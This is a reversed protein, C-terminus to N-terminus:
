QGGGTAVKVRMVISARVAEPFGDWADIVATLDSDEPLARTASETASPLRKPANDTM